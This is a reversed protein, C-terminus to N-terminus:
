GSWGRARLADQLRAIITARSHSKNFRVVRWSEAMVADLRDVDRHFQKSDEFHHAGDYEIMIRFAPYALDALALFAGYGNTIVFNVLPEPLGAAVIILRITTERPSDTRARVRGSASHLAKAGRKGVYGISAAHLEELSVLPSQRRVLGDGIVVLEDSTLRAACELWSDLPRSVPLGEVSITQPERYQHGRIGAARPATAPYAVGVHLLAESLQAEPVPLGHIAVATLECFFQGPLLRPAYARARALIRERPSIEWRPEAPARVGSFPAELDPGRMRALSLGAIRGEALSFPKGLLRKPLPVRRPM